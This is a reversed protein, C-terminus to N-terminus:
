STWVKINAKYCSSVWVFFTIICDSWFQNWFYISRQWVFHLTDTGINSLISINKYRCNMEQYLFWTDVWRRTVFTYKISVLTATVMYMSIDWLIAAIWYPLPKVSSVFQLHKSKSVREEVYFFTVVFITQNKNIM